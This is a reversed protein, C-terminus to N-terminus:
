CRSYRNTSIGGAPIHPNGCGTLCQLSEFWCGEWATPCCVFDDSFMFIDYLYNIMQFTCAANTPSLQQPRRGGIVESLQRGRTVGASGISRHWRHRDGNKLAMATWTGSGHFYSALPNEPTLPWCKSKSENTQKTGSVLALQSLLGQPAEVPEWSMLCSFLKEVCM